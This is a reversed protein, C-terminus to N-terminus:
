FCTDLIRDVPPPYDPGLPTGPGPPAQGWPTDPGLPLLAQDPPPDGPGSGLPFNLPVPWAGGLVLRGRGWRSISRATRMRSSHM